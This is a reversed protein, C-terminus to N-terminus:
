KDSAVDTLNHVEGDAVYGKRFLFFILLALLIFGFVTGVGFSLTGTFLGVIQYIM